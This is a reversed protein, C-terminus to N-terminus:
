VHVLALAARLSGRLLLCVRVIAQPWLFSAHTGGPGADFHLAKRGFVSKLM